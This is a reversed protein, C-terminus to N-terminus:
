RTKRKRGRGGASPDGPRRPGLIDYLTREGAARLDPPLKARAQDADLRQSTWIIRAAELQEAMTSALWRARIGAPARIAGKRKAKLKREGQSARGALWELHRGWEAPNASTISGKGHGKIDIVVVGRALAEGLIACLAASPRYGPPRDRPPLILCLGSAILLTDGPRSDKLWREVERVGRQDYDYIVDVKADAIMQDIVVRRLGPITRVFIARRTHKDVAM